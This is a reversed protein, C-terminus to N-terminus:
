VTREDKKERIGKLIFLPIVGIRKIRKPEKIIRYAWEMGINIMWKPARKLKGGIIDLSGGVGMAIKFPLRNYNNYIFDEQRPCGLAVVLLDPSAKEIEDIVQEEDKYYGDRYGVINLRPYKTKLNLVASELVEKEAGLLFVKKQRDQAESILADLLEIGAIKEKMKQKKIRSIAVTGIGDPIIITNSDNFRDFLCKSELGSNLIEPNGSVIVKKENWNLDEQILEKLGRNYVNMGMIKTYNSM